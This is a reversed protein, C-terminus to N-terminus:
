LKFIAIRSGSDTALKKLQNATNLSTVSSQSTSKAMKTIHEVNTMVRAAIAAQKELADAISAVSHLVQTSSNRIEEMSNGAKSVMDVGERVEDVVSKMASAAKDAERRTKEIMESIEVTSSSTRAALNRVEDAVVAFGRGQEGARAAEIAANLALLNTQDAIGKIVQVISEISKTYEGLETVVNASDHIAGATKKISSITKNIIEAGSTSINESYRAKEEASQASSSAAVVSNNLQEMQKNISDAEIGQELATQSLQESLETQDIAQEEVQKSLAQVDKMTCRLQETASNLHQLSIAIEDQATTSSNDARLDYNRLRQSLANLSDLRSRLMKRLYFGGLTLIFIGVLGNTTLATFEINKLSNESADLIRRKKELANSLRDNFKIASEVVSQEDLQARLGHIDSQARAAQIANIMVDAYGAEWAAMAASFQSFLSKEDSALLPATENVASDLEKRVKKYHKLYKENGTNVYAELLGSMEVAASTSESVGLMQEALQKRLKDEVSQKQGFHVTIVISVLLLVSVVSSGVFIRKILSQM